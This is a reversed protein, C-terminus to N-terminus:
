NQATRLAEALRKYFGEALGDPDLGDGFGRARFWWSALEETYKAVLRPKDAQFYLKAVPSLQRPFAELWYTAWRQQVKADARKLEEAPVPLFFQIVLDGSVVAHQARFEPLKVEKFVPVARGVEEITHEDKSSLQLSRLAEDPPVEGLVVTREDSM